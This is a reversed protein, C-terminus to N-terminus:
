SQETFGKFIRTKFEIVNLTPRRSKQNPKYLNMFPLGGRGWWNSMVQCWVLGTKQLVRVPRNHVERSKMIYQEMSAKVAANVFAALNRDECIVTRGLTGRKRIDTGGLRCRRGKIVELEFWAQTM